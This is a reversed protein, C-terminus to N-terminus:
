LLMAKWSPGVIRLRVPWVAEIGVVVSRFTPGCFAPMYATHHSTIVVVAPEPPVTVMVTLQFLAVVKALKVLVANLKVETPSCAASSPLKKEM